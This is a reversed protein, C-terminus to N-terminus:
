IRDELKRAITELVTTRYLERKDDSWGSGYILDDLDREIEDVVSAAYRKAHQRIKGFAGKSIRHRM